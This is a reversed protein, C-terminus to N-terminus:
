RLCPCTCLGCCKEMDLLSRETRKLNADIRNMDKDSRRLQEGQEDLVVMTRGAIEESEVAYQKM